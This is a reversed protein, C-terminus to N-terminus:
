KLPFDRLADGDATSILAHYLLAVRSNASNALPRNPSLACLRDAGARGGLNGNFTRTGDSGDVVAYLTIASAEFASAAPHPKSPLPHSAPRPARKCSHTAAAAREHQCTM